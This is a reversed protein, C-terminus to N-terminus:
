NAEKKSDKTDIIIKQGRMTIVETNKVNAKQPDKVGTYDKTYIFIVGNDRAEQGYEEPIGDGKWVSISEINDSNMQPLGRGKYVNNLYYLPDNNANGSGKVSVARFLVKHGSDAPNPPPPPPAIPPPPPPPPLTVAKPAPAPEPNDSRISFVAPVPPPPPPTKVGKAEKPAKPAKPSPPPPPPPPPPAVPPVEKGSIDVVQVMPADPVPPALPAEKGDPVVKAQPADPVAPPAPPPTVSTDARLAKKVTVTIAARTYNLSVLALIMLSGLVFYRVLNYKSSRKKNMMMIRQKLHSFNFNNAIATAYPIGSVKLLSYQYAKIDTGQRLMFRDTIFELNERIAISILWAGPNFWYFIKNIEGLLVDLTHWQKVHVQEHRMIASLEAPSHMDPNIYINNLFSFPQLSQDTVRIKQDFLKDKSTRRHLMWLSSLQFLMRITMVIVGTWFIYILVVNIWPTAPQRLDNFNIVYGMAAGTIPRKHRFITEPDIFPCVAACIIALLLFARNLTYFTLRRLGFRYALYFLTLAINAKLLFLLM